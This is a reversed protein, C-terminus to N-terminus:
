HEGFRFVVPGTSNRAAWGEMQIRFSNSYDKGSSGGNVYSVFPAGKFALRDKLYQMRLECGKRRAELNRRRTDRVYEPLTELSRRLLAIMCTTLNEDPWDFYDLEGNPVCVYSMASSAAVENSQLSQHYQQHENTIPRMFSALTWLIYGAMDAVTVRKFEPKAAHLTLSDSEVPTDRAEIGPGDAPIEFKHVDFGTRLDACLENTLKWQVKPHGDIYGFELALRANQKEINKTYKHWHEHILDGYQDRQPDPQKYEKPM